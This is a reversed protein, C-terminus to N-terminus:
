SENEQGYVQEERPYKNVLRNNRADKVIRGEICRKFFEKKTTEKYSPMKNEKCWFLYEGVTVGLLELAQKNIKLINVM